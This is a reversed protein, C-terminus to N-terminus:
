SGGRSNIIDGGQVVEKPYPAFVGKLSTTKDSNHLFMGPYNLLDSETICIKKGNAGEVILPLFAIKQTDWESLKINNYTNQFNGFFQDEFKETKRGRAYPIYAKTDSPFNFTAQENQVIFPYNSDSVFRYAVGDNYARFIISYDGKFRITLENFQNRVTAKKYIPSNIDEDVQRETVKSVKPNVGGWTTGDGLTMSVPSKDIMLDKGHSVSYVIDSQGISIDIQLIGAPAKLNYQKQAIVASSFGSILLLLSILRYKKM